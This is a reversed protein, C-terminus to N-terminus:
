SANSPLSILFKLHNSLCLVMRTCSLFRMIGVTRLIEYTLLWFGRVEYMGITYTGLTSLGRFFKGVSQM